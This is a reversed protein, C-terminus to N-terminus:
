SRRRVKRRASRHDVNSHQRRILDIRQARGRARHSTKVPAPGRRSRLATQQQDAVAQTIWVGQMTGTTLASRLGADMLVIVNKRLDIDIPAGVKIALNLVLKGTRCHDLGQVADSASCQCPQRGDATIVLSKLGHKARSGDLKHLQQATRPIGSRARQPRSRRRTVTAARRHCYARWEHSIAVALVASEHAPWIHHPHLAM